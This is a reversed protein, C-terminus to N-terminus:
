RDDPTKLRIEMDAMRIVKEMNPRSILTRSMMTLLQDMNPQVAMGALLPRLVSQTDVYVRASAEYRNPLSMVVLGGAVAVVWACIVAFWRYRWMAHLHSLIQQAIEHM